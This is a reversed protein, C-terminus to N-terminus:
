IDGRAEPSKHFDRPSTGETSGWVERPDRPCKVLLKGWTMTNSIIKQIINHDNNREHQRLLANVAYRNYFQSERIFNEITTAKVLVSNPTFKRLIGVATWIPLERWTENWTNTEIM